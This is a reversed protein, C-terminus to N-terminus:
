LKRRKMAQRVRLNEAAQYGENRIYCRVSSVDDFGSKIRAADFSERELVERRNQLIKKEEETVYIKNAYYRPLKVKFGNVICYGQNKMWEGAVPLVSAGIGPRRSMLSFEPIVGRGAYDVAADGYLKKETYRAVYCASDWTVPLVSVFGNGWAREVAVTDAQTLGFLIVHYHPRRGKEGYEAGLYYRFDRGPNDKDGKRLRKFFKQCDEVVLSGNKPLHADDYTLTCFCSGPSHKVEDMIRVSWERAKNLRCIRCRGCPVYGHQDVFQGTGDGKIRPSIRIPYPCRM